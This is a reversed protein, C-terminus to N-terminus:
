PVCGRGFPLWRSSRGRVQAGWLQSPQRAKPFSLLTAALDSAAADATSAGGGALWDLPTVALFLSGMQRRAFIRCSRLVGVDRGGGRAQPERECGLALAHLPGRAQRGRGLWGRPPWALLQWVACRRRAGRFEVESVCGGAPRPNRRASPIPRPFTPHRCCLSPPPPASISAEFQRLYTACCVGRMSLPKLSPAHPSSFLANCSSDVSGGKRGESAAANATQM